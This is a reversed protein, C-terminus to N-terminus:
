TPSGQWMGPALVKAVRRPLSRWICEQWVSAAYCGCVQQGTYDICSCCFYSDLDSRWVEKVWFRWSERPYRWRFVIPLLFLKRFLQM